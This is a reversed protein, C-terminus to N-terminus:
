RLVPAYYRVVPGRGDICDRKAIWLEGKKLMSSLIAYVSDATRQKYLRRVDLATFPKCERARYFALLEHRIIGHKDGLRKGRM